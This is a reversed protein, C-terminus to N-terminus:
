EVMLGATLDRAAPQVKPSLLAAIDTARMDAELCAKPFDEATKLFGAPATVVPAASTRSIMSLLLRADRRVGLVRIYPVAANARTCLDAPIDLLACCLIRQIRAYTYRKSKARLILDELSVAEEAAKLIKYELGENVGAIACLTQPTMARLRGLLLRFLLEKDTVLQGNQRAKSLERAIPLPTQALAAPFLGSKIASRVASASWFGQVSASDHNAGMRRVTVPEMTSGTQELARLYEIGLLNNPHELLPLPRAQGLAHTRAAPHSLGRDLAAQLLETNEKQAALNQLTAIEGSESGFALHTCVGLAHLSAVGGLAFYPAAQLAYVTPLELVMDAGCALAARTRAFKDLLAPEGRQVFSGSMICVVYDARSEERAKQLQFAHGLHLPNYECIIGCINIFIM